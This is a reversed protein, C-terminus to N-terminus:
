RKGRSSLTPKSQGANFSGPDDDKCKVHFYVCDPHSFIHGHASFDLWWKDWNLADWNSRGAKTSVRYGLVETHKPDDVPLWHVKAGTWPTVPESM